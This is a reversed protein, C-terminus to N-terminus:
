NIPMWYYNRTTTGSSHYIGKYSDGKKVPISFSNTKVYLYYAYIGATGRTIGNIQGEIRGYSDSNDWTIIGVFFGDAEATYATNESRQVWSGFSLTEVEGADHGMTTPSGSGYAIVYGIGVLFIMIASLLWLDKKQININVM